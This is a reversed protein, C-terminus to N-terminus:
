IISKFLVVSNKDTTSTIVLLKRSLVIHYIVIEELLGQVTKAINNERVISRISSRNDINRRRDRVTAKRKKM